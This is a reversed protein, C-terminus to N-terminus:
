ITEELQPASRAPAGDGYLEKSKQANAALTERLSPKSEQSVKETSQHESRSSTDAVIQKGGVEMAAQFAASYSDYAKTVKPTFVADGIHPIAGEYSGTELTGDAQIRLYIGDEGGTYYMAGRGNLRYIEDEAWQHEGIKTITVNAFNQESPVSQQSSGSSHAEWTEREVGFLGGQVDHIRMDELSEATAETGDPHLLYIQCSENWLEAAREQGLPLLANDTYGYADRDALSVSQDPLTKEYQKVFEAEIEGILSKAEQRVRGLLGRLAVPNGESWSALYDFSGTGTEIGFRGCVVYAVSAAEFEKLERNLFADTDSHMRANALVHIIAAITQAESMGERIGFKKDRQSYYGTHGPPLTEFSIPLHSVTKVTDLLLGHHAVSGALMEVSQPLPAGKTDSVDYVPVLPYQIAGTDKNETRAYIWIATDKQPFRNFQEKWVEFSALRTAEPKQQHILMINRVSYRHFHSIAKLYAMYKESNSLERMGAKLKQALTEERAKVKEIYADRDYEAM